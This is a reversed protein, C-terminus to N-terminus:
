DWVLRHATTVEAPASGHHAALLATGEDNLTFVVEGRCIWYRWAAEFARVTERNRGFSAPVAHLVVTNEVPRRLLHAIARGSAARSSDPTPLVYRPVLYRPRGTIPALVEDLAEAFDAAAEPGSGTLTYRYVGDTDVHVRVHEAGTSAHKTTRLADAVACAYRGTDVPRAARSLLSRAGRYRRLVAEGM